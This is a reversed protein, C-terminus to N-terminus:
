VTTTVLDKTYGLVTIVVLVTTMVAVMVLEVLLTVHNVDTTTPTLSTNLQVHTLVLDTTYSNPPVLNVTTMTLDTVPKVNTTVNKADEPPPTQIGDTEADKEANVKM